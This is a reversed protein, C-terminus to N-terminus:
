EISLLFFVVFKTDLKISIRLLAYLNSQSLQM